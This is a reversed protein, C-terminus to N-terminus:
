ADHHTEREPATREFLTTLLTRDADTFPTDRRGMVREAVSLAKDLRYTSFGDGPGGWSFPPVYRPPFDGGYLNCCTGVVTGTNFMTNIGCKSHDGMFLGAFQRGTDVFAGDAPAYASVEGYDNKLNSNNTDAGLNCWRGLYAHGLFGPHSKNSLSHIVTDHVEGGVKCYYGFAANQVDAMPKVQTKPGVYCPGRVVAQEFVTANEDVYIPGDEANLLAGPRVTAGAGLHIHEPRVSTVSPHVDAQPRDPPPRTPLADTRAAIDRRLAPPLTGLLDWPRGVLTADEVTTVPLDAFATASVASDSLLDPPLRAAADPVWAAVVTDDRVFARAGGGDTVHARIAEVAPGAAVFRGNVFLVDAGDPLANLRANPHAPATVPAV